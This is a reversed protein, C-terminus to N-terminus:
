KHTPEPEPTPYQGVTPPKHPPIDRVAPLFTPRILREASCGEDLLCRRFNAMRYGVQWTPDIPCTSGPAASVLVLGASGVAILYFWNDPAPLWNSQAAPWTCVVPVAPIDLCFADNGSFM